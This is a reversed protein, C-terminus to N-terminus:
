SPIEVVCDTKFGTEQVREDDTYGRPNCVVRCNGIDYDYSEHVHGHIWLDAKGVLDDLNSGYAASLLSKRRREPISRMSPAHHTIVVRCGPPADDLRDEIFRRSIRHLEIMKEPRIWGTTGYVIRSCDTLRSRAIDLALPCQVIGFLEFDTWLTAGVFRVGGIDVADNDLYHIGLEKAVARLEIATRELRTGYYEHNGSLYIIQKGFFAEQTAAWRLGNAGIGIDGALVIVDADTGPATFHSFELHLDSMVHIKM